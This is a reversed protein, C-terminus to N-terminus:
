AKEGRLILPLSGAIGGLLGLFLDGMTDAVSPQTSWGLLADLAFEHLEWVVATLGVLSVIFALLMLGQLPIGLRRSLLAYAVGISVGGFLHMPIDVWSLRDYLEFWSLILHVALIALPFLFISILERATPTRRGTGAPSNGM